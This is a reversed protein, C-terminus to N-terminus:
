CGGQKNIVLVVARSFYEGVARLLLTHYMTIKKPVSCGTSMAEYAVLTKFLGQLVLYTNWIFNMEVNNNFIGSCIRNRVDPRLKEM